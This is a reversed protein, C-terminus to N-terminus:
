GSLCRGLAFAHIKENKGKLELMGLDEFEFRNVAMAAIDEGVLITKRTEKTMSELRFAVNVSDGVATFDRRAETGVNGIIAEGTQLGVGIKFHMGPMKPHYRDEFVAALEVLGLAAKLPNIIYDINGATEARMWYAMVCDGIFKDILGAHQDILVSVEKFWSGIMMSLEKPAIMESMTTYNRIDAVMITVQHNHFDLITQVDSSSGGALGHAEDMYEMSSGGITILDGAKLAIPVTVRKGNIYTGNASGLDFLYHIGNGHQQIMAHNRSAKADKIVISSASSRGISILPGVDLEWPPQGQLQVKIKAPM